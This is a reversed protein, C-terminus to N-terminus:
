YAFLTKKRQEWRMGLREQERCLDQPGPMKGFVSPSDNTREHLHLHRPGLVVVGLLFRLDHTLSPFPSPVCWWEQGHRSGQASCCLGGLKPPCRPPCPAPHPSGMSVLTKQNASLPKFGRQVGFCNWKWTLLGSKAKRRKTTYSSSM